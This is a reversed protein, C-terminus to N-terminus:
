RALTQFSVEAEGYVIGRDGAFARARQRFQTLSEGQKLTLALPEESVFAWISDSGFPPGAVLKFASEEAPIAMFDGSPYRHDSNYANPFIMVTQHTSDTYLLFVYGPRDLSLLLSVQDGAYFSQGDGFQTTLEVTLKGPSRNSNSSAQSVKHGARLDMLSEEAFAPVFYFSLSLVSVLFLFGCVAIFSGARISHNHFFFLRIGQSKKM